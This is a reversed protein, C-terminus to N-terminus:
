GSAVESALPTGKFESQAGAEGNGICEVQRAGGDFWMRGMPDTLAADLDRAKAWKFIPDGSTKTSADTQADSMALEPKEPHDISM